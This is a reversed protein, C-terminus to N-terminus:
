NDKTFTDVVGNIRQFIKKSLSTEKKTALLQIPVSGIYDGALYVKMYGVRQGSKFKKESLPKNLELKSTIKKQEEEKLPYQFQSEAALQFGKYEKISQNAEIPQNQEIIVQHIYQSFGYEFLRISDNWDNSDNLTIAALQQENKSASSALTRKSLKTYGTKVGDAYPYMHLLKNKNTWKRDWKEGELPATKVKTSVIQKFVPNKLAYATLIGMDRATSYHQEHDLGHPNMFHSHNMGLYAAKENMLYVFGEVSGGIHEAVAVAADNGSRLMLGYLMNELSLKEGRKLYISSGEVGFARDSTKVTDNLNGQEIAIIATMIKTLSAIRMRQDINKQYLIRGSQVDVLIASVANTEILSQNTTQIATQKALAQNPTFILLALMLLINWKWAKKRRNV